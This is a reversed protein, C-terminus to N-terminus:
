KLEPNTFLFDIIFNVLLYSLLFSSFSNFWFLCVFRISGVGSCHVFVLFFGMCVVFWFWFLVHCVYGGFLVGVSVSCFGFSFMVCSHLFFPSVQHRGGQSSIRYRLLFLLKCIVHCTRSGANRFVDRSISLRQWRKVLFQLQKYGMQKWVRRFLNWFDVKFFFQWIYSRNLQWTRNKKM